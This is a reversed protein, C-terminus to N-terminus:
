STEEFENKYENRIESLASDIDFDPPFADQWVGYLDQPKQRVRVQRRLGQALKELLALQEELPLKEALQAVNELTVTEM